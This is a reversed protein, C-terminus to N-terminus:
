HGAHALYNKLRDIVNQQLSRYFFQYDYTHYVGTPFLDPGSPYDSPRIGTIKLTGRVPDLYCGCLNKVESKIQGKRTLFCSGPNSSAAAPTSDTKWNLPNIGLTKTGSPVMLSDTIFDAESNFSIIVGTDSQSQAIKLQPYKKCEAATIRWGIAYAAVLRHKLVPDKFYEKMLRLMQDAGQSFGAMILPRSPDSHKLYYSFAASVDRYGASLATHSCSSDQAYTYLTAQRYYPAYFSCLNDYIGKEMSVSDAFRSRDSSSSLSMNKHDADGFVATPCLFFVDAMAERSATSDNYNVWYYADAYNVSDTSKLTLHQFVITSWCFLLIGFPFIIGRINPRIPKM